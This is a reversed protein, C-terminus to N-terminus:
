APAGRDGGPAGDERLADRIAALRKEVARREGPETFANRATRAVKEAHRRLAARDEPRTAVLAAGHIVEMLRVTTLASARAAERLRDLASDILSPMTVPPAVVRVRGDADLRYRSPMERQALRIAASGLRNLCAVPTFPDNLSPSLARAAIEVLQDISFGIDQAPTRVAGTVFTARVRAALADSGDRVPWVRALLEGETVYEGPRREIAIVVNARTALDLLTSAEIVQVYGDAAARVVCVDEPRPPHPEQQGAHGAGRGIHEPFLRDISASLEGAVRAVVDDAQISTAVHHVFYILLGLSLLALSMGVTVSLQPVFTNGTQLRIARLVLLSYLFTSVFAGITVQNVADRMFNRLLRPGFQSSALTLAVLTLSLVVGAITIMSGAITGLITSAGEASGTYIWGSERLWLPSWADDIYLTLGALAAAGAALFAPLFWLSSRVTEWYQALRTV